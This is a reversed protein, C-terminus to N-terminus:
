RELVQHHSGGKSQQGLQRPERWKVLNGDLVRRSVNPRGEPVRLLVVDVVGRGIELLHRDRERDDAASRTGVHALEDGMGLTGAVRCLGEAVRHGDVQV